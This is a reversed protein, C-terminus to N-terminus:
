FESCLCYSEPDDGPQNKCFLERRGDVVVHGVKYFGVVSTGDRLASKITFYVKGLGNEDAIQEVEARSYHNRETM